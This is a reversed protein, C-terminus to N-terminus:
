KENDLELCLGIFAFLTWTPNLIVFDQLNKYAGTKLFDNQTLDLRDLWMEMLDPTCPTEPDPMPYRCLRTKALERWYAFDTFESAPRISVDHKERSISTLNESM